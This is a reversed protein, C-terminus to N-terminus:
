RNWLQCRRETQHQLWSPWGRDREEYWGTMVFPFSYNSYILGRKIVSGRLGHEPEENIGKYDVPLRRSRSSINRSRNSSSLLILVSECSEAMRQKNGKIRIYIYIYINEM